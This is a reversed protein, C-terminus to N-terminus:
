NKTGPGYRRNIGKNDSDSSVDRSDSYNSGNDVKRILDYWLKKYKEDKTRNYDRAAKDIRSQYKDM